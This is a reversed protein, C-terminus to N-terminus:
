TCLTDRTSPFSVAMNIDRANIFDFTEDPWHFDTNVDHIEFQVNPLPYRTQIPVTNRTTLWIYLRSRESQVSILAKFIYM